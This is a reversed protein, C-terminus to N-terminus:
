FKNVQRTQTTRRESRPGEIEAGIDRVYTAERAGERGDDEKKKTKKELLEVVAIAFKALRETYPIGSAEVLPSLCQSRPHHRTSPFAHAFGTNCSVRPPILGSGFLLSDLIACGKM